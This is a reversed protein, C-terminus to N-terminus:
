AAELYRSEIAVVLGAIDIPKTVHGDAGARQSQSFDAPASHSTVMIINARPWGASLEHDRICKTAALGDMNPMSVDMLILEYARTTAAKVGELGDVAVDVTLGLSALIAYFLQRHTAHDDVVLARFSDQSM